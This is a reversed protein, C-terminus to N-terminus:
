YRKNKFYYIKDRETIKRIYRCPNGAAVVNDPISQTVVSGSGIVTNDGINVGPNIITGGGIWVNNGIHIEQGFEIGTNRIIPDIPHGAAFINVNPGIMVNNGIYIPATDLITLNYNAFFNEGVHINYGYDCYFPPKIRLKSKSSGIIKKALLDLGTLDDVPWNNYKQILLWNNARDEALGDKSGDYLLGNLMKKKNNM